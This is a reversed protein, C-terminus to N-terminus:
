VVSGAPNTDTSGKEKDKLLNRIINFFGNGFSKVAEPNQAILNKIGFMLATGLFKKLPNNTLSQFLTKSLYGATLGITTNILNDQFDPSGAADALGSKILNIPKMSEYAVLFQEKLLRGDEAQRSELLLIAVRLDKVTNIMHM